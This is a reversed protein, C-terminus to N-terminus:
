LVKPMMHCKDAGDSGALCGRLLIGSGVVM